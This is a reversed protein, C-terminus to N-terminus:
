HPVTTHMPTEAKYGKNVMPQQQGNAQWTNGMMLQCLEEQMITTFTQCGASTLAACIFADISALFM